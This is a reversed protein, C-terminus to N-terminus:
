FLAEVSFLRDIPDVSARDEGLGGNVRERNRDRTYLVDAGSDGLLRDRGPGGRLTDNQPGGVLHDRGRGGALNDAGQGGNLFDNGRGGHILDARGWGFIVDDGRGGLLVNRGTGGYLRDDGPGGWVVDPGDGTISVVLDDGAETRVVGGNSFSFFTNSGANGIFTTPGFSGEASEVDAQVWDHEGLAGDNARGDLSIRVRGRHDLYSVYDKGPGGAMVDTGAGGILTDEGPGGELSDAGEGGVLYQKGSQGVLRDDGLGGEMTGGGRLTDNGSGGAVFASLSGVVDVSVSDAGDKTFVQVPVPEALECRVVNSSISVCETTEPTVSTSLDTFTFVGGPGEVVSVDNIEGVVAKYAIAPENISSSVGVTAGLAPEALLTSALAAGGALLTQFRV